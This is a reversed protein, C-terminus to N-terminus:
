KSTTKKGKKSQIQEWQKKHVRKMHQRRHTSQRFRKECFMCPFPREGTHIRIHAQLSCSQNFAKSCFQCKWPKENTHIRVHRKLTCKEAFKRKCIECQWPREPDDSKIKTTSKMIEHTRIHRDMAEKTSFWHSNCITCQYQKVVGNAGKQCTPDDDRPLKMKKSIITCSPMLGSISCNIPQQSQDTKIVIEAITTQMQLPPTITGTDSSNLSDDVCQLPPPIMTTIMDQSVIANGNANVSPMLHNSDGM